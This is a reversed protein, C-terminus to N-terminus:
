VNQFPWWLRSICRNLPWWTFLANKSVIDCEHELLEVLSIRTNVGYLNPTMRSTPDFAKTQLKFSWKDEHRVATVIRWVLVRQPKKYAMCKITGHVESVHLLALTLILRNLSDQKTHICFRSETTAVAEHPVSELISGVRNIATFHWLLNWSSFMDCRPRRLQPCLSKLNANVM